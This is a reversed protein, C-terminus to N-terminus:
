GRDPKEFPDFFSMALRSLQSPDCWELMCRRTAHIQGLRTESKKEQHMQGMADTQM